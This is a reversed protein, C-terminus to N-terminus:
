HDTKKLIQCVCPVSRPNNKNISQLYSKINMEPNDLTVNYDRDVEQDKFTVFHYFLILSVLFGVYLYKESNRLM